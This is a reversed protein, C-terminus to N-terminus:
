VFVPVFSGTHPLHRVMQACQKSCDTFLERAEPPELRPLDCHVLWELQALMEFM